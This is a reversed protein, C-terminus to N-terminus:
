EHNGEKEIKKSQRENKMERIFYGVGFTIIGAVILADALNFTNWIMFGLDFELFDIVGAQLSFVQLTRDVLNGLTGPIAMLLGALEFKNLVSHKINYYAIMGIGAGLSFLVLIIKGVINDGLMGGFAGPNYVLSLDFFGEIIEIRQDPDSLLLAEITYKSILDAAILLAMFIYAYIHYKKFINHINLLRNM